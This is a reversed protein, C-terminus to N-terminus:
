FPDYRKDPLVESLYYFVVLNDGELPGVRKYPWKKVSFAIRM